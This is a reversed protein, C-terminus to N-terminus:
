LNMLPFVSIVDFRLISAAPTAPYRAKVAPANDHPMKSPMWGPSSCAASPVGKYMGYPNPTVTGAINASCISKNLKTSAIMVASAKAYIARM